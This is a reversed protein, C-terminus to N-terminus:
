VHASEKWRQLDHSYQAYSRMATYGRMQPSRYVFVACVMLVICVLNDIIVVYREYPVYVEHRRKNMAAVCGRKIHLIVCACCSWTSRNCEMFILSEHLWKSCCTCLICVNKQFHLHILFYYPSVSLFYRVVFWIHKNDRSSVSLLELITRSPANVGWKRVCSM